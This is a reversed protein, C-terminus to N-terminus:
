KMGAALAAAGMAVADDGLQAVAVKVSPRMEPVVHRDLARECEQKYISPLAEVLGGGLVILNPSLANVMNAALIGVIYAAERVIEEVVREGKRIAEALAGSKIRAPDTGALDRLIPAKDRQIAESARASVAVRSAYAEFCGRNGCGCHPGTPNYVLHGLEAASGTVGLLLKGEIIIGGGIGTGPFIGVINDCGRGAGHRYEGYTGANVDNEIAIPVNWADEFIKRIPVDRWGLNLLRVIRGKKRDLVGPLGFGIGLLDSKALGASNLAEELCSHIRGMGKEAGEEARTKAKNVALPRFDRSFIVCRMKTGGLDFGAYCEKKGNGM